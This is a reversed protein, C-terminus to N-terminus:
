VMDATVGKLHYRARIRAEVQGGTEEGAIEAELVFVRERNGRVRESLHQYTEEDCVGNQTLLEIAARLDQAEDALEGLEESRQAAYEELEVLMRRDDELEIHASELSQILLTYSSRQAAGPLASIEARRALILGQQAELVQALETLQGTHSPMEAQICSECDASDINVTTPATQPCAM